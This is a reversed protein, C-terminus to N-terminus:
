REKKMNGCKGDIPFAGKTRREIYQFYRSIHSAAEMFGM